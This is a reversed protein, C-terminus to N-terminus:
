PAACTFNAADDTSGSGSYRAVQPYPCLPRTRVAHGVAYKTAIIKGPMSGHEVWNELALSMSHQPDSQGVAPTAGFTDPGPGGGCHQMGPVMYLRVFGATQKQGLKAAVSQYYNVTAQPPLAPDSWGHYLILKGGRAAFASLDPNTADLDAAQKEKSQQWLEDVSTALVNAKPDGTVMYRFYNQVFQSSISAGPDEGVVWEKWGTEDGMTFGPFILQGHSDKIGAYLAKAADIQPQTLCDAADGNKCLLVQPDFQCKAPDGIVGDKAGDLADCAALSARQMAALKGDPIYAKPDNMLVQMVGAGDTLLATWSNAPAGALIGGYDGPFRQAEMLGERGGDSCGDYYSKDAPKGYYTNLIQKTTEATLHLARWGFDKVKEPHGWAFTADTNEAEHGADTGSVAFGRQLYAAMQPYYIAGAFGGNGTGLVRGNWGQAPLWVEFQIDSDSTPHLEGAIRFFAPLSALSVGADPIDLTGSTVAEALTIHTGTLQVNKLSACDAAFLLPSFGALLLVLGRRIRPLSRSRVEFM